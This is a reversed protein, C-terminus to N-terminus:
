WIVFYTLLNSTLRGASANSKQDSKRDMTEPTNFEMAFMFSQSRDDTETLFLNM